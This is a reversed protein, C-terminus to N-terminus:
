SNFMILMKIQTKKPNITPARDFNRCGPSSGTPNKGVMPMPTQPLKMPPAIFQDKSAPLAVNSGEPNKIDITPPTM